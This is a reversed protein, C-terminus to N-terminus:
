IDKDFIELIDADQKEIRTKEQMLEDIRKPRAMDVIKAAQNAEILKQMEKSLNVNAMSEMLAHPVAINVTKINVNTSKDELDNERTRRKAKNARLAMVMASDADMYDISSKAAKLAKHEIEDWADDISLPREVQDAVAGAYSIEYEENKRVEALEAITLNFIRQLSEDDVNQATLKAVRVFISDEKIAIANQEERANFEDFVSHDPGDILSM